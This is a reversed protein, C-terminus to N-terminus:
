RSRRRSRPVRRGLRLRHARFSLAVHLTGAAGAIVGLLEFARWEDLLAHGALALSTQLALAALGWPWRRPVNMAFVTAVAIAIPAALAFLDLVGVPLDEPREGPTTLVLWTLAALWWGLTALLQLHLALPRPPPPLRYSRLMTPPHESMMAPLSRYLAAGPYRGAVERRLGDDVEPALWLADVTAHQARLGLTAPVVQGHCSIVGVVTGQEGLDSERLAQLSGFAWIGCTCGPAPALHEGTTGSVQRDCDATNTGATWATRSSIPALAGGRLLRFTRVARVSGHVVPPRTM